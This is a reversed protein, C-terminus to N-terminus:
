QVKLWSGEVRTLTYLDVAVVMNLESTMVAFTIKAHLHSAVLGPM